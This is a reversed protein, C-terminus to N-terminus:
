FARTSVHISYNQMLFHSCTVCRESIKVTAGFAKVYYGSMDTALPFSTVRRLTSGKGDSQAGPKRPDRITGGAVHPVCPRSISTGSQM